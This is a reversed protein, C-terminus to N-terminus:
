KIIEAASTIPAFFVKEFNDSSCNGVTEITTAALFSSSYYKIMDQTM